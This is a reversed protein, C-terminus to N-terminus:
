LLMALGGAWQSSGRCLLSLHLTPGTGRLAEPHASILASNSVSTIGPSTAMQSLFYSHWCISQTSGDAESALTYSCNRGM